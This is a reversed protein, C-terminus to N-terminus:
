LEQNKDKALMLGITTTKEFVNLKKWFELIKQKIKDSTSPQSNNDIVGQITSEKIKNEKNEEIDLNSM